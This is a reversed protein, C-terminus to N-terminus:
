NKRKSYRYVAETGSRAMHSLENASVNVPGTGYLAYWARSEGGSSGPFSAFWDVASAMSLSNSVTFNRASTSISCATSWRQQSCWRARSFSSSCISCSLLLISPHSLSTFSLQLLSFSSKSSIIAPRSFALSATSSLVGWPLSVSPLADSDPMGRDEPLSGSSVASSDTFSPVVPDRSWSSFM